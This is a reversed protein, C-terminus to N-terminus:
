PRYFGEGDSPACTPGWSLRAADSAGSSIFDVGQYYKGNYLPTPSKYVIFDVAHGNYQTRGASKQITGWEPGLRSLVDEVLRGCGEWSPDTLDYKSPDSNYVNEIVGLVNPISTDAVGCDEGDGDIGIGTGSMLMSANVQPVEIVPSTFNVMVDALRLGSNGLVADDNYKFVGFFEQMPRLRHVHLVGSQTPGSWPATLILETDTAVSQIVGTVGNMVITQGREVDETFKTGNGTVRVNRSVCQVIGGSPLPFSQPPIPEPAPSAEDSEIVTGPSKKASEPFDGLEVSLNVHANYSEGVVDDPTDFSRGRLRAYDISAVNRGSAALAAPSMYLPPHSLPLEGPQETLKSELPEGAADQAEDSIIKMVKKTDLSDPKVFVSSVTKFGASTVAGLKSVKDQLEAILTRAATDEYQSTTPNQWSNLKIKEVEKSVNTIKEKSSAVSTQMAPAETKVAAAVQNLKSKGSVGLPINVKPVFTPDFPSKENIVVGSPLSMMPMGGPSFGGIDVKPSNLFINKSAQMEITDASIKLKGKVNIAADDKADIILEGSRVHLTYGGEVVVNWDGRIMIDHNGITVDQRNKVTKYKVGGDPRMEIHSGATHYIHIREHEHTDDVEILHGAESEILVTNFPYEPQYSPAEEKLEGGSGAGFLAAAIKGKQAILDALSKTIAM